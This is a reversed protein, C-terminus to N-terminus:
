YSVIEVPQKHLFTIYENGYSDDSNLELTSSTVSCGPGNDSAHDSDSPSSLPSPSSQWQVKDLPGNNSAQKMRM